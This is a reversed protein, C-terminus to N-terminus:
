RLSPDLQRVLLLNLRAFRLVMPIAQKIERIVGSYEEENPNKLQEFLVESYRRDLAVLQTLLQNTEQHDIRPYLKIVEEKSDDDRPFIIKHCYIVKRAIHVPAELLKKYFTYELEESLVPLDLWAKRLRRLKNCIFARTDGTATLHQFKIFPTPDAKIAGGNRIAIRLHDVLTPGITHDDPIEALDSDLPIYDLPIHLDEAFIRIEHFCEVVAQTEQYLVFFDIDSRNTHGGILMTGCLVGGTVEPLLAIDQRIKGVVKGFSELSPIQGAVIDSFPFVQGM